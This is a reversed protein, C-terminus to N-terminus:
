LHDGRAKHAAIHDPVADTIELLVAGCISCKVYPFVMGRGANKSLHEGQANIFAGKDYNYREYKSSGDWRVIKHSEVVWRKQEM